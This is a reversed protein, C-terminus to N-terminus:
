KDFLVSLAAGCIAWLAIILFLPVDDEVGLFILIMQEM